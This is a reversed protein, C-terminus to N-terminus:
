RPTELDSHNVSKLQILTPTRFLGGIGRDQDDIHNGSGRREEGGSGIRGGSKGYFCTSRHALRLPWKCGSLRGAYPYRSCKTIPQSLAPKGFTAFFPEFSQLDISLVDTGM